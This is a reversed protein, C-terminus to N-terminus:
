RRNSGVLSRHLGDYDVLDILSKRQSLNGETKEGYEGTQTGKAHGLISGLVADLGGKRRIEDAFTHRFSHLALGREKAGLRKLYRQWFKSVSTSLMGRECPKIEPFLRLEGHQRQRRCYDLLGLDILARHIPVMRRSSATKLSKSGEEGEGEEVFDFIWVGEVEKLDACELQAIEGTRAGSYAACLPIWYRWDRVEQKGQLHEKGDGECRRFLASQFVLELKEASYVPLRGIRRNVRPALGVTLNEDCYGESKLWKFFSSLGSWEKAITKPNRGHGGRDSWVKAVQRLSLDKLENRLQWNVPVKQLANRFERFESKTVSAVDRSQGVFKAFQEIVKQETALTDLKKQAAASYLDLLEAITSGQQADQHPEVGLRRMVEDRSTQSTEGELGEIVERRALALGVSVLRALEEQLKVGELTDGRLDWGRQQAIKLALKEVAIKDEQPPLLNGLAVAQKRAALIEGVNAHEAFQKKLIDRHVSVYRGHVLDITANALDARSPVKSAECGASTRLEEWQEHQIARM